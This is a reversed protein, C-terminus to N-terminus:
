QFADRAARTKIASLHIDHSAVEILDDDTLPGTVKDNRVDIIMWGAEDEATMPSRRAVIYRDDWGVSTVSGRLAGGHGFDDGEKVVYHRGGELQILSYSGALRKSPVIADCAGMCAAASLTVALVRRGRM